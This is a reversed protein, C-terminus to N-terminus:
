AAVGQRYTRHLEMDIHPLVSDRAECYLMSQGTKRFGLKTLVNISGPNDSFAGARVIEPELITFIWTLAENAAETMYGQGWHSKGLWYGIGPTGDGCNPHDQGHLSVMGILTGNLTIAFDFGEKEPVKASSHRIFDLAGGDPYPHPVRALKGAVDFDSIQAQIAPADRETLARLVLRETTLVIRRM